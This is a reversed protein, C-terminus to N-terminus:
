AAAIGTSAGFLRERRMILSLIATLGGAAIVLTYTQDIAKVIADLVRTRLEASLGRVLSSRAGLIAAQIDASPTNPLIQEIKDQSSNLLIANAIALSLTIGVFQALTIFGIAPPIDLPKVVTQVVSFSAQLFMGVGAGIIVTYGYVRSTPTDQEVTYMLAGGVVVLLGGVLYWPMYYGLKPMLAGNSFVIVVMVVIFPLLRVGADLPGDNRTFQFFIPVMYIPVFSGAGGTACVVFLILVSRSRFFQIPITRRDPTTFINFVQQVGLIIFLVGTVVFLAIIRGSDWPYVVGGLNVALILATLAGAQLTFGAYDVEAFRSRLSAGPRPDKSPILFIYFPACVAGIFLNIYFAWRWGVSSESFAGGIVPGLVIGLGWTLGTSSVYLPREAMTTTTSILTMCGVYLGSGGAGAIARGLIMVDMTPAAGCIVSGVEFLVVHFIYLWKPNFQSYLRGWALNTATATLLFAVSLWSLKQINGFELIIVPQLDAVVTNDLAYIFTSLLISIITLYWKWGNIDRPPAEPQLTTESSDPAQQSQKEEDKSSHEAPSTSGEKSTTIDGLSTDGSSDKGEDIVAM